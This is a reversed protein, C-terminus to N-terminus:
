VKLPFGFRGSSLVSNQGMEKFLTVIRSSYWFGSCVHGTCVWWDWVCTWMPACVYYSLPSLHIAATLLTKQLLRCILGFFFPCPERGILIVSDTSRKLHTFSVSLYLLCHNTQLMMALWISGREWLLDYVQSTITILYAFFCHTFKETTRLCLRVTANLLMLQMNNGCQFNTKM